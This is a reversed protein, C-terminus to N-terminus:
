RHQQRGRRCRELICRLVGNRNLDENDCSKVCDAHQTPDQVWKDGAVEWEGKFYRLVDISQRSRRRWGERQGIFRRGAGYLDQRLESRRGRDVRRHCISVSLADSIVTLTATCRKSVRRARQPIPADVRGPLRQGVLLCTRDPWRDPQLPQGACLRHHGRRQEDSYVVNTGSTLSGGINNADGALDFRVRVNQVPANGAGVFLARLESRNSTRCHEGARREAIGRAVGVASCDIGAPDHRHRIAGARDTNDDRGAPRPGSTWAAVAARRPTTTATAAM